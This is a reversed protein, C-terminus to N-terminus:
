QDDDNVHLQVLNWSRAPHMCFCHVQRTVSDLAVKHLHLAIQGPLQVIKVGAIAVLLLQLAKCPSEVMSADLWYSVHDDVM